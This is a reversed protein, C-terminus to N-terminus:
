GDRRHPPHRIVMVLAGAFFAGLTSFQAIPNAGSGSVVYVMSGGVLLLVLLTMVRSRRGEPTSPDPFKADVSLGKGGHSRLYIYGLVTAALPILIDM